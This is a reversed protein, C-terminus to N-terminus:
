PISNILKSIHRELLGDLAESFNTLFIMYNNLDSRSVNLVYATHAISNRKNIISDLKDPLSKQSIKVNKPSFIM